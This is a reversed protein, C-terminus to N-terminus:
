RAYMIKDIKKSLKKDSSRFQLERLDSLKYKKEKIDSIPEIKFVPKSNKVVIFSAGRLTQQSIRKLDKHLQKIGIIKQM